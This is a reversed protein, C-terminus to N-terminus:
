FITKKVKENYAELSFPVLWTKREFIFFFGFLDLPHLLPSNLFACFLLQIIPKRPTLSQPSKQCREQFSTSFHTSFATQGPTSLLQALASQCTPISPISKGPFIQFFLLLTVQGITQTYPTYYNQAFGANRSVLHCQCFSIKIVTRLSTKDVWLPCLPAGKEKWCASRQTNLCQCEREKYAEGGWAFCAWQIWAKGVPYM